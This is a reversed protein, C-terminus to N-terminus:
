SQEILLEFQKIIDDKSIRHSNTIWWQACSIVVGTSMVAMMEPLFKDVEKNQKFTAFHNQLDFTVQESLIELVINKANSKMVTRAMVKNEDLFDILYQFIITLCRKPNQIDFVVENRANYEQQLEQIMYVLLESKDGFHKYFTARRTEARECLETVSIEDFSKETLLEQLAKLLAKHTKKIRLDLKEDM